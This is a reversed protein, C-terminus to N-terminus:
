PHQGRQVADLTPGVSLVEIRVQDMEKDTLPTARRLWIEIRRVPDCLVTLSGSGNPAQVAELVLGTPTTRVGRGSCERLFTSVAANRGNLSADPDDVVWLPLSGRYEVFGDPAEALAVGGLLVNIDADTLTDGSVVAAWAGFQLGLRHGPRDARAASAQSSPPVPLREGGAVLKEISGVAVDIRWGHQSGPEAYVSGHLELAAFTLGTFPRGMAPPLTLRLRTGDLLAITMTATDTGFETPFLRSSQAGLIVTHDARRGPVLVAFGIVAGVVLLSAVAFMHHRHRLRRYVRKEIADVDLTTAPTPAAGELLEAIDRAPM